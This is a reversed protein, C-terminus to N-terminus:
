HHQLTITCPGAAGFEYGLTTDIADCNTRHPVTTCSTVIRRLYCQVAALPGGKGAAVINKYFHTGAHM